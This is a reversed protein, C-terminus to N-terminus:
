GTGQQGAPGGVVSGKPLNQTDASTNTDQNEGDVEILVEGNGTDAVPEVNEYQEETSALSPVNKFEDPRVYKGGQMEVRMKIQEQEKIALKYKKEQRQTDIRRQMEEPTLAQDPVDEWKGAQKLKEIQEPNSVLGVRGRSENQIEIVEDPKDPNPVKITQNAPVEFEQGDVIQTKSANPNNPDYGAGENITTTGDWNEFTNKKKLAKAADNVNESNAAMSIIM